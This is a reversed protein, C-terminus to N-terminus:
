KKNFHLMPRNGSGARMIQYEMLAKATASITMEGIRQARSPTGKVNRVSVAMVMRHGRWEIYAMDNVVSIHGPMELFGGVGELSYIRLNSSDTEQILANRVGKQITKQSSPNFYMIDNIFTRVDSNIYDDQFYSAMLKASEYLPAANEYVLNPNLFTDVDNYRYHMREVGKTKCFVDLTPLSGIYSLLIGSANSDSQGLSYQMLEKISMSLRRSDANKLAEVEQNYQEYTGQPQSHLKAQERAASVDGSQFAKVAGSLQSRKQAKSQRHAAGGILEGTPDLIDRGVTAFLIEVLPSFVSRNLQSVDFSVRYDPGDSRASMLSGVAYALHFKSLGFLPYDRNDKLAIIGNEDMLVFSLEANLDKEVRQIDRILETADDENELFFLNGTQPLRKFIRDHKSFDGFPKYNPDSNRTERQESDYRELREQQDNLVAKSAELARQKREEALVHAPKKVTGTIPDYYPSALPNEEEAEAATATYSSYNASLNGHKSYVTNAGYNVKPDPAPVFITSNKLTVNHLKEESAHEDEYWMQYEVPMAYASSIMAVSSAILSASLTTMVAKSLLSSKFIRKHCKLSNALSHKDSEDNTCFM